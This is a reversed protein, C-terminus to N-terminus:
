QITRRRTRRSQCNGECYTKSTRLNGRKTRLSASLELNKVTSPRSLPEQMQKRQFVIGKHSIQLNLRRTCPANMQVLMQLVHLRYTRKALSLTKSTSVRPRPFVPMPGRLHRSCSHPREVEASNSRLQTRGM